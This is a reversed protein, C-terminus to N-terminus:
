GGAAWRAPWRRWPARRAAGHTAAVPGPRVVHSSTSPSWHHYTPDGIVAVSLGMTTRLSASKARFNGRGRPDPIGRLFSASTHDAVSRVHNMSPRTRPTSPHRARAAESSSPTETRPEGLSSCARNARRRWRARCPRVFGNRGHVGASCAAPSCDMGRAATSRRGFASTSSAYMPLAPRANNSQHLEHCRLTPSDSLPSSLPSLTHPCPVGIPARLPLRRGVFALPGTSETTSRPPPPGPAKSTPTIRASARVSPVSAASRRLSSPAQVPGHQRPAAGASIEIRCAALRQGSGQPALVGPPVVHKV